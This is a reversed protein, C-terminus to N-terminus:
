ALLAELQARLREDPDAGPNATIGLKKLLQAALKARAAPALGPWRDLLERV